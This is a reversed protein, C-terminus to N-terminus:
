SGQLHNALDVAFARVQDQTSTQQPFVVIAVVLNSVVLFVDRNRVYAQDGVGPLPQLDTGLRLLLRRAADPADDRGPTAVYYSVTIKPAPIYDPHDRPLLLDCNNSEDQQVSYAVGLLHMSPTLTSCAPPEARFQGDDNFGGALYTILAAALLVPVLIAAVLILIRRRPRRGSPVLQPGDGSQHERPQPGDVRPQHEQAQM